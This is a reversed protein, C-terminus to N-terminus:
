SGASGVLPAAAGRPLTLIADPYKAAFSKLWSAESDWHVSGDIMLINIGAGGHNELDRDYAVPCQEPAIKSEISQDNWNIYIYDNRAWGSIQSNGNRDVGPCAFLRYNSNKDPHMGQAAMMSELSSPWRSGHTQHYYLISFGIVRLQQQCNREDLYSRLQSCSVGIVIIVAISAIPLVQKIM